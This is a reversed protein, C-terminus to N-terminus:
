FSRLLAQIYRNHEDYHAWTNGNIWNVVPDPREPSGGPLYSSYPKFLDADGLIDLVQLMRRHTSQFEDMVQALPLVAQRRYILDNVEDESKGQQVADEVQMAAFRPRHNLLEVIGLEWATLHALHDKISWGEPGPRTLQEESLGSLTKELASRSRQMRELLEAKNAPDQEEPTGAPQTSM